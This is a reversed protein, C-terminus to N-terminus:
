RATVEVPRLPGNIDGCDFAWFLAYLVIAAGLASRIARPNVMRLLFIEM